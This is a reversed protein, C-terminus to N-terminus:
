QRCTTLAKKSSLFSVLNKDITVQEEWHVPRIGKHSIANFQFDTSNAADVVASHFSGFSKVMSISSESYEPFLRLHGEHDKEAKEDDHDEEMEDGVLGEETQDDDHSWALCRQLSFRPSRTLSQNRESRCKEDRQDTSDDEDGTDYMSPMYLTSVTQKDLLRKAMISEFTTKTMTHITQLLNLVHLSPSSLNSQQQQPLLRLFLRSSEL